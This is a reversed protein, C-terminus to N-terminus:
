STSCMARVAQRRRGDPEHTGGPGGGGLLDRLMDQLNGGGPRKTRWAPDGPRTQQGGGLVSRLLDELGGGGPGSSQAGGRPTQGPQQEGGGLVSRLLDELSQGGQAPPADRRDDEYGSRPM